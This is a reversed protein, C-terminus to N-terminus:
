MLIHKIRYATEIRAQKDMLPLGKNVVNTIALTGSLKYLKNRAWYGMGILINSRNDNHVEYKKNAISIPLLSHVFDVDKKINYLGTSQLVGTGRYRYGDGSKVSGNGLRNAYFYNALNVSDAKHQKTRGYLEALKPHKRFFKSYKKIRSPTYNLREKFVPRGNKSIGLEHVVQALFRVRLIPTDIKFECKYKDLTESLELCFKEDLTPKNFIKRIQKITLREM